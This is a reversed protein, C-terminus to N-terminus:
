ERYGRPLCLCETLTWDLLAMESPHETFFYSTDITLKQLHITKEASLGGYSWEWCLGMLEWLEEYGYNENHVIAVAKKMSNHAENCAEHTLTAEPNLAKEVWYRVTYGIAPTPTPEPIQTPIPRPTATLTPGPTPPAVSKSDGCAPVAVVTIALLAALRLVIILKRMKQWLESQM